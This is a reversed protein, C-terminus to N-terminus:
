FPRKPVKPMRRDTIRNERGVAWMLYLFMLTLVIASAMATRLGREWGQWFWVGGTLLILIPSAVMVSCLVVVAATVRPRPPWGGYDYHRRRRPSPYDVNM